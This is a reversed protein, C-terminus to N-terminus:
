IAGRCRITRCLLRCRDSCAFRDNRDLAVSQRPFQVIIDRSMILWLLASGRGGLMILSMSCYFARLYESIENPLVSRCLEKM